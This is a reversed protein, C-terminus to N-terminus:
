PCSTPTCPCSTSSGAPCSIEAVTTCSGSDCCCTDDLVYNAWVVGVGFTTEIDDWELEDVTDVKGDKNIDFNTSKSGGSVANALITEDNSDTDGDGDFDGPYFKVVVIDGDIDVTLEMGPTMNSTFHIVHTTGTGTVSDVDPCNSQNCSLDVDAADLTRSATYQVTMQRPGLVKDNHDLQADAIVKGASPDTWAIGAFSNTAMACIATILTSRLIM